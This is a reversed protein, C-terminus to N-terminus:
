SVPYQARLVGKVSTTLRGTVLLLVVTGVMGLGLYFPAHHHRQCAERAPSWVPARRSYANEVSSAYSSPASVDAAFPEDLEPQSLM